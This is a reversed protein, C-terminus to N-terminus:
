VGVLGLGDLYRACQSAVIHEGQVVVVGHRELVTIADSVALPEVDGLETELEARSWQEGHDDRLLQLVIPREIRPDSSLRPHETM